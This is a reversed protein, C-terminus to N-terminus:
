TTSASSAQSIGTHQEFGDRIARLADIPNICTIGERVLASSLRNIIYRPSIGDMGERVRRKRCSAARGEVQLGGRGRRRLAEDEEDHEHGGEEASGPAYLVAFIAPSECRTRRSTFARAADSQQLLKEYIREEECVRLNYPVQM